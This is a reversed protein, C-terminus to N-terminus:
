RISDIKKNIDLIQQAIQLKELEQLDESEQKKTLKSIMSELNQIKLSKAMIEISKADTEKDSSIDIEEDLNDLLAAYETKNKENFDEIELIGKAITILPIYTKLRSIIEDELHNKDMEHIQIEEKISIDENEFQKTSFYKGYVMQGLAKISVNFENALRKIEREVELPNKHNQLLKSADELYDTREVYNDLRYGSKLYELRFRVPPCSNEMRSLFGKIGDNKIIEDPDKFPSLNIVYSPIEEKELIDLARTTAKKGADDSDYAIYVKKDMRKILKAQNETLSTGLSAIAGTIGVKYLSIVDMYGEVLILSDPNYKRAYNIAYLNNSKSFIETEPSNLYKPMGDTLVRGGFAIVRGKYDFIPFMLRDFFRSYIRGDKQKFIGSSILEKEKFGKAKLRDLVKTGNPAYGLGFKKITKEDLNRKELYSKVNEKDNFLIDRYIKAAELHVELLRQRRDYKERQEQSVPKSEPFDIHAIDCLKKVSEIFDINNRKMLFSIADGSEGCGFCKFIQKKQNVSFSPTKEAHFPCLGMYNDGSKKLAVYPSIIDVIDVRDKLNEIFREDLFNSNSM